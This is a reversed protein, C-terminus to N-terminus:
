NIVEKILPLEQFDNFGRQTVSAKVAYIEVGSVIALFLAEDFAASFGINPMFSRVDGRQSVFLLCSRTGQQALASLAKLQSVTRPSVSDPYRAVGAEAVMASKVEVYCPGETGELRLDHRHGYITPEGVQPQMSRLGGIVSQGIVHSAIRNSDSTDTGIWTRGYRIAQMTFGRKCSIDTNRRLLVASGRLLCGHFSGPNPCFATTEVGDATRVRVLFRQPRDIYEGVFCAGRFRLADAM